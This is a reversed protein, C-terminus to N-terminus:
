PRIAIKLVGDKRSRFLDYAEPTQALKMQHTFLPRLDVKGYRVLDMM